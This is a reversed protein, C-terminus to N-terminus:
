QVNTCKQRQFSQIEHLMRRYINSFRYRTTALMTALRMLIPNSLKQLWVLPGSRQVDIVVMPLEAMFGHVFEAMLSLGPGLVHSAVFMPIRRYSDHMSRNRRQKFM